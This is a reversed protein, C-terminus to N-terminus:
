VGGEKGVKQKELDAMREEVFEQPIGVPDKQASLLLAWLKETFGAANKELFPVLTVQIRKPDLM